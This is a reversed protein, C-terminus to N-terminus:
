RRITQKPVTHDLIDKRYDREVGFGKRKCVTLNQLFKEM